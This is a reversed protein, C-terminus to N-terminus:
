NLFNNNQLYDYIGNAVLEHFKVTGHMDHNFYLDGPNKTEFLPLLNLVKIGNQDGFKQLTSFYGTNNNSLLHNKYPYLTLVFSVDESKLMDSILSINREPLIFEEPQPERLTGNVDGFIDKKSFLERFLVSHKEFFSMYVNRNNDANLLHLEGANIQQLRDVIQKFREPFTARVSLPIHNEDYTTLAEYATDDAFDTDDFNLIVMDPNFKLGINKIQLYELLPSYSAVGMNIVEFHKASLNNLKAELLASFTKDQSVGWGETFSDGLMLIRFTDAPKELSREKDRFGFSNIRYVVNWESTIFPCTKNPVHVHNLLEDTKLCDLPISYKTYTIRSFIEWFFLASFMGLVVMVIKLYFIRHSAIKLIGNRAKTLLQRSDQM